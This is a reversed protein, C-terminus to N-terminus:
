PNGDERNGVQLLYEGPAQDCDALEGVLVRVHYIQLEQTQQMTALLVRAQNARLENFGIM